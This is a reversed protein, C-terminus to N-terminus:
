RHPETAASIDDPSQPRQDDSAVGFLQQSMILWSSILPAISCHDLRDTTWERSPCMSCQKQFSIKAHVENGGPLSTATLTTKACNMKWSCFLSYKVAVNLCQSKNHLCNIEPCKSSFQVVTFSVTAFIHHRLSLARNETSCGTHITSWTGDCKFTRQM